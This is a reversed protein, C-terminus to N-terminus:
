QNGGDRRRRLGWRVRVIGSGFGATDEARTSVDQLTIVSLVLLAQLLTRFM